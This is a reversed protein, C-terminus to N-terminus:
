SGEQSGTAPFTKKKIYMVSTSQETGSIFPDMLPANRYINNLTELHESITTLAYQDFTASFTNKKKPFTAYFVSKASM